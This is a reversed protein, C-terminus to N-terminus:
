DELPVLPPERALSLLADVAVATKPFKVMTRWPHAAPRGSDQIKENCPTVNAPVLQRIVKKTGELLKKRKNKQKKKKKPM